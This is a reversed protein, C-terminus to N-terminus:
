IEIGTVRFGLGGGSANSFLRMISLNTTKPLYTRELGVGLMEDILTNMSM